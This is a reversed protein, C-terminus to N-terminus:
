PAEFIETIEWNGNEKHIEWKTPIWMSGTLLKGKTDYATYCYWAWIYGDSFNHWASLRVLLLHVRGLNEKDWYSLDNYINIPKGETEVSETKWQFADKVERMVSSTDILLVSYSILIIAIIVILVKHKKIRILLSNINKRNKIIISACIIIMISFFLDIYM